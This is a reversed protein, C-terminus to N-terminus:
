LVFNIKVDRDVVVGQILRHVLDKQRPLPASSFESTFQGLTTMFEQRLGERHSDSAFQKQVKTLEDQIKVEEADVKKRRESYDSLPIAGGEYGILLREQRKSIDELAKTLSGVQSQLNAVHTPTSMLANRYKPDGYIKALEDTIIKHLKDAGM